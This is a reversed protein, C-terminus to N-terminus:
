TGKPADSGSHRGFIRAALLALEYLAILPLAVAVQTIVDPPTILAAAVFAIVIMYKRFRRLGDLTVVGWRALLVALLPLQFVIGFAVIVRLMFSLYTEARPMLVIGTGELLSVFYAFGHPLVIFYCALGGLAFLISSAVAGLLLKRRDRRCIAPAAFPEPALASPAARLAM